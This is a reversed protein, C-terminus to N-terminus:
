AAKCRSVYHNLVERIMRQYKSKHKHAQEQFFRITALDLGITVKVIVKAKALEEPLPLFDKVARLKGVPMDPDYERKRKKMYNGEKAGIVPGSLEFM